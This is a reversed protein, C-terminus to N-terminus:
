QYCNASAMSLLAIRPNICSFTLPPRQEIFVMRVSQSSYNHILSPALPSKQCYYLMDSANRNQFMNRVDACVWAYYNKNQFSPLFPLFVNSPADSYGTAQARVQGGAAGSDHGQLGPSTQLSSPKRQINRSVVGAVRPLSACM